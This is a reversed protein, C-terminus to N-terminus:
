GKKLPPYKEGAEIRVNLVNQKPPLPCTTYESFACPPNYARNLDLRFPVGAKPKEEVYLFRGSGYTTDGATADKFIIFLGTDDGVVDLRYPRGFVEFEVYGPAAEDSIEDLVNVIAVKRPPDYPVFKAAVRYNDDVDYWVRGGFAKRVESQNDALRLIYRGEREIIHFAMRGNSVWDRKEASTGMARDSFEGDWSKMKFGEVLKVTVKGPEVWVSGMGVPGLGKPFVVDNKEGTGFTNEGPKLVYRGALTLWGNDRRLGEEAKARWDKVSKAYAPDAAIVHAHGLAPAALFVCLLLSLIKM